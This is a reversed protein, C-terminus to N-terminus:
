GAAKMLDDLDSGGSAQGMAQTEPRRTALYLGVVILVFGGVESTTIPEGLVLAGVVLAVAPNVYTIFTARVPGADAILAFFLLFAVATCLVGLTIISLIANSSIGTSPLQAIGIPAYLIAPIVLSFAVVGEGPLTQLRRAVIMPGAAYGVAVVILAAVGAVDHASVNFGVVAAVGLFGIVLGLLRRGTFQEQSSVFRSLLVGCLPVGGILLGTLSSSVRTEVWSLVVWPIAVEVVTYALLVRWYPRLPALSGRWAAIPVLIAAGIVCRLFVLTIPTVDGVAVKILLYPIGWIVSMAAFLLWSRRTM